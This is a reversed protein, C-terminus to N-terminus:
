DKIYYYFLNDTEILLFTGNFGAVNDCIVNLDSDLLSMNDDEDTVLFTDDFPIITKYTTSITKGSQYNYFYYDYNIEQCLFYNSYASNGYVSNLNSLYINECNIDSIAYLGNISYIVFDGCINIPIMDEFSQCVIYGLKDILIQDGDSTTVKAYGEASFNYASVYVPEIFSTLDDSIFGYLGNKTIMTMGNISSSICDYGNYMIKNLEFDFYYFNYYITNSDILVAFGDITDLIKEGDIYLDFYKESQCLMVSDIINIDRYLPEIIINLDKDCVGYLSDYSFICYDGVFESDSLDMSSVAYVGSTDLILPVGDYVAYTFNGTFSLAKEFGLYSLKSFGDIENTVFLDTSEEVAIENEYIKLSNIYDEYNSIEYYFGSDTCACLLLTLILAISLTILKKYHSNHM